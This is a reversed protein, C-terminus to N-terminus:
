ADDADAGSGLIKVSDRVSRVLFHMKDPATCIWAWSHGLFIRSERISYLDRSSLSDEISSLHFRAAADVEAYLKPGTGLLLLITCLLLPFLLATQITSM